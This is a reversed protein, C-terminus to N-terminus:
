HCYECYFHNFAVITFVFYYRQESPLINIKKKGVKRKKISQKVKAHKKNKQHKLKQESEGESEVSSHSSSDDSNLSARKRKGELVSLLNVFSHAYSFYFIIIVFHM